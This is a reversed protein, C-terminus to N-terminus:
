LIDQPAYINTQIFGAILYRTGRRGASGRLHGFSNKVDGGGTHLEAEVGDAVAMGVIELVLGRRMAELAASQPQLLLPHAM